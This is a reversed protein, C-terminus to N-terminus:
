EADALSEDVYFVHRGITAVHKLDWPAHQDVNHFHTPQAPHPALLMALMAIGMAKRYEGTDGPKDSRGDCWWAFQCQHLGPKNAEKVVECVTDGFQENGVRALVTAAVAMQGAVPEGRSEFYVTLALCDAAAPDAMLSLFLFLTKMHTVSLFAAQRM